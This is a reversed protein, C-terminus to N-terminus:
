GLEGPLNAIEQDWITDHLEPNVPSACFVLGGGAWVAEWFQSYQYGIADEHQTVVGIFLNGELKRIFVDKIEGGQMALPFNVDCAPLWRPGSPEGTEAVYQLQNDSVALVVTLGGWQGVAFRQAQLGISKLRGCTESAEDLAYCWVFGDPGISFAENEGADNSQVKTGRWLPTSTDAPAAAQGCPMMSHMPLSFTAAYM